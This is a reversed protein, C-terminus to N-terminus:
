QYLGHRNHTVSNRYLSIFLKLKSYAHVSLVQGTVGQAPFFPLKRGASETWVRVEEGSRLLLMERRLVLFGQFECVEVHSSESEHSSEYWSKETRLAITWEFIFINNTNIWGQWKLGAHREAKYLLFYLQDSSVRAHKICSWVHNKCTMCYHKLKQTWLIQHTRYRHTNM